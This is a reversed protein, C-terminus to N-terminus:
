RVWGSLSGLELGRGELSEQGLDWSVRIGLHGFGSTSREPQRLRKHEWLTGLAWIEPKVRRVRLKKPPSTLAERTRRVGQLLRCRSLQCHLFQVSANFVPRLRFSFRAPRTADPHSPPPFAVSADAPCGGSLLVLAPGSAPRSSPTVLCRHLSLGWRPSPRALAAQPVSTGDPDGPERRYGGARPAVLTRVQVFM